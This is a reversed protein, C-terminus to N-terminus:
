LGLGRRVSDVLDWQDTDGHVDFMNVGILKRERALASKLELSQADDYSIVQDVVESRLFPTSSCEDWERIFGGCGDYGGLRSPNRCLVGQDVLRRFQVAGSDGGEETSAYTYPPPANQDRQYLRTASSRSVIGYSPVGLALQSPPFGAATWANIAAVANAAPLTSNQCTNDLPANSGPNSSASAPQPSLEVLLFKSVVCGGVYRLEHDIGM